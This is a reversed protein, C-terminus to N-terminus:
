GDFEGDLTNTLAEGWSRGADQENQVEYLLELAMEDAWLTFPPAQEVDGPTWGEVARLDDLSVGARHLVHGVICSPADDRVYFCEMVAGRDGAAEPELKPYVYDEGKEAIVERLLALARDYTLFEPETSV